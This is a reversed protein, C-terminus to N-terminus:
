SIDCYEKVLIKGKPSPMFITQVVDVQDPHICQKGTFGMRWGNECENQLKEKNKFETCVLDIAQLQFAKAATVIAARPYYLESLDQSRHVATDATYDEAAFKFTFILWFTINIRCSRCDSSSQSCNSEPKFCRSCVRHLGIYADRSTEAIFGVHSRRVKCRCCIASKTFCRM